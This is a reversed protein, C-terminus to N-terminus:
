TDAPVSASPASPQPSRGPLARLLLPQSGGPTSVVAGRYPDGAIWVYVTNQGPMGPVVDQPDGALATTLPLWAGDPAGRPRVAIGITTDSGLRGTRAEAERWPHAALTRRLRGNRSWARLAGGTAIAMLAIAATLRWPQQPTLGPISGRLAVIGALLAVDAITWAGAVRRQRRVARRTAECELAPTDDM